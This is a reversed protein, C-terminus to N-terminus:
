GVVLNLMRGPIYIQKRITKGALHPAVTADAQAAAVIQEQAAGNPVTVKGRLKGNVQVPVEITDQVLYAPNFQPWPVYALTDSHGLRQWLEEAFHPAFPALLLVFIEMVSKPRQQWRQCENSFEMMTSIATNFRLGEIDGTVEKITLHLWRLQDKTPEADVIEPLLADARDDIFLRWVRNLFRHTGEVGKMSWPKVQELPGMFMEYLRLTDAGYDRVVDDPNIVNGRSKSMKFARANVRIANNEKLVFFDGKKEVFDDEVREGKLKAHTRSDHHEEGVFEASVPRGAEDYFATYEMEGLIM